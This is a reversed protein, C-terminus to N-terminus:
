FWEGANVKDSQISYYLADSIPYNEFNPPRAEGLHPNPAIPVSTWVIVTCIFLLVAITIDLTKHDLGEALNKRFYYVLGWSIISLIITIFVHIGPLPANSPMFIGLGINNAQIGYKTYKSFLFLLGFFVIPLWIGIQDLNSYYLIKSRIKKLDAIILICTLSVSCIFYLLSFNDILIIRYAGYHIKHLNAQLFLIDEFAEIFLYVLGVLLYNAKKSSSHIIRDQAIRKKGQLVPVPDNGRFIDDASHWLFNLIPNIEDLFCNKISM